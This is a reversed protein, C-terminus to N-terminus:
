KKINIRHTCGWYKLLIKRIFADKHVATLGKLVMHMNKMQCQLSQAVLERLIGEPLLNSLVPPLKDTRIQSRSLYQTDSLQRLTFTPRKEEALTIFSPNFTLINKGGAYHAVVAVDIGHLEINLGEVQETQKSMM